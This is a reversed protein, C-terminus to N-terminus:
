NAGALWRDVDPLRDQRVRSLYNVSAVVKRLDSRATAPFGPPTGNCGPGAGRPSSQISQTLWGCLSASNAANRFHM